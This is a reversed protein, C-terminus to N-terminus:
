ENTMDKVLATVKRKIKKVPVRKSLTKKKKVIKKKAM